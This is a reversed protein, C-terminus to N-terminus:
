TVIASGLKKLRSGSM